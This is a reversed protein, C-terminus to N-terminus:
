KEGFNFDKKLLVVPHRVSEIDPIINVSFPPLVYYFTTLAYNMYISAWHWLEINSSISKNFPIADLSRHRMDVTVGWSMNGTGIPQSLFPHSFSEQRGFSYGYYDESGTGFSSPFSEGDVFIKEDGEGWWQYTNNFLTVQDGAYVGKGKIDIFNIDFHSGKEDRTKIHYYEHWSAGFYMSNPAWKYKTLGASGKLEISEAGYNIITLICNERFPMVWFSGMRGKEDRQNMRTKHPNLTYGSGFFEGVPVWITQNKDFSARLVTSRLAQPMNSAKLEVVLRNIAHNKQSFEVVISDGPLIMKEFVKEPESSVQNDSLIKGAEDMLPRSTKLIESTVSEVKIEKPYVRYGINYFVDPWYYGEPVPIGENEYRMVLSDCEYTIKCHKEFPLPVYLNHDYDRGAEGLPAGEQVSAALTSNTLLSGSLLDKPTGKIVPTTDNDIYIRIIGNQAKYFTMWWRVIAGPGDADLMVFERRGSNKEVRIFHSMDNNAFWSEKGPSVSERNYSSAQHHSYANRPFYTLNGRSTMEHLLSNLTVKESCSCSLTLVFLIRWLSSCFLKARSKKPQEIIM